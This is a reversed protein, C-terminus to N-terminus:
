LRHLFGGSDDFVLFIYFQESQSIQGVNYSNYVIDMFAVIAFSVM